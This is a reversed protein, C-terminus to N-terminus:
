FPGQHAPTVAPVQRSSGQRNCSKTLNFQTLAIQIYKRRSRGRWGDMLHRKQRTQTGVRPQRQTEGRSPYRLLFSVERFEEGPHGSTPSFDQSRQARLTRGWGRLLQSRVRGGWVALGPVPLSPAFLSSIKCCHFRWVASKSGGSSPPKYGHLQSFFVIKYSKSDKGCGPRSKAAGRYPQTPVLM